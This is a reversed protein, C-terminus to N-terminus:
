RLNKKFFEVALSDVTAHVAHRDVSPDDSFGTLWSKKVADNAEGLMVYHGTKGPFEYYDSGGILQHLHNANTRIPAISDSQSGVIYVAGHITSFQKISTFGSGLAPAISFFAKIRSDKLDPVHRIGDLLTSDDLLKALGPMEPIEIERHGVGKYFHILTPYDVVAGALALVTYGGFSFGIAGIRDADISQKFGDEKLLQTLVFSIDLPREWPKMFEIRIPNDFTNGWHDVAAVIFGKEALAQALWELTLRGGGTGHSLLILPLKGSPLRGDRVTYRRVFPSNIKDSERLTDDTPYWVETVLPRNRTDDKFHFTREGIPTVQAHPYYYLLLFFITLLQKYM